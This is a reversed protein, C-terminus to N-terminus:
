FWVWMNTITELRDGCTRQKFKFAGIFEDAVVPPATFCNLEGSLSRMELHGFTHLTNLTRFM